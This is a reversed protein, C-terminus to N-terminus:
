SALCHWRFRKEGTKLVFYNTCSLFSMVSAFAMSVTYL